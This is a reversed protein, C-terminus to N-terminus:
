LNSSFILLCADGREVVAGSKPRQEVVKGSGSVAVMLELARVKNLAARMSLGRLDPM